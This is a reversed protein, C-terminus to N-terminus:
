NHAPFNQDIFMEDLAEVGALLADYDEDLFNISELNM